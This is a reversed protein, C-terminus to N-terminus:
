ALRFVAVPTAPAPLCALTLLRPDMLRPHNHCHGGQELVYLVYVYVCISGFWTAAM